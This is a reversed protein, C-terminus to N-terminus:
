RGDAAVLVFPSWAAPHAWFEQWGPLPSGDPRKGTRVEGMATRLAEAKTMGQRSLRMTEVTLVATVEDSVRWHSALLARAGAHLFARGLGSLSQSGPTGDSAATNCASLIVWDANLKLKAAESATLLGDDDPSAVAPPTFVLGPEAMRGVEQPLLGHTAFAVIGAQALRPDRKLAGETAAQGLRLAGPPTKLAEAMRKLEIETGPLPSLKRLADPSAVTIGQIGSRLRRRGGSEVSRSGGELGLLSPAGYGVFPRAAGGAPAAAKAVRLASVAPLTIFAYKDGLWQTQELTDVDGAEAKDKDPDFQTVLLPLPVGGLPGAITVFVRRAKGLGPELPAFLNRYLTYAAARDFRPFFADIGKLEGDGSATQDMDEARTCSAEDVRCRLRRVLEGVPETAGLSVRLVSQDPSVVLAYYDKANPVMLVLAEDPALRAQVEAISLPAPSVLEEFAPFRQKLQADVTALEAAAGDLAKRQEVIGPTKGEALAKSLGNSLARARAVLQQKRTVLEGLPGDGAVLRAAAEAMAQGASSQELDQAAIFLENRLTAQAGAEDSAEIKGRTAEILAGYAMSLPDHTKSDGAVARTLAASAPDPASNAYGGALRADRHKRAITAAERALELAEDAHGGAAVLARSLTTLLIVLDPHDPDLKRQIPVGYRLLPVAEEAKGQGLLASALNYRYKAYTIDDDTPGDPLMAEYIELAYRANQEALAYRGQFNQRFAMNNYTRAVIHIPRSFYRTRIKNVEDFYYDSEEVKGIAGLQDAQCEMLNSLRIAAAMSQFSGNNTEDAGTARWVAEARPAAGAALAIAEESRGLQGLTWCLEYTAVFVDNSDAGDAAVRMDLLDRQADAQESLHQANGLYEALAAQLTIRIAPDATPAGAVARRLLTEGEAPRGEARLLDAEESALMRAAYSDAGERATLVVRKRELVRRRGANDQLFAYASDLTALGFDEDDASPAPAKFVLAEVMPALKGVLEANDDALATALRDALPRWSANSGETVAPEQALAVSVPVATALLVSIMSIRGFGRM